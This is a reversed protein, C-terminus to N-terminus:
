AAGDELSGDEVLVLRGVPLEIILLELRGRYAQKPIAIILIQYFITSIISVENIFPSRYIDSM